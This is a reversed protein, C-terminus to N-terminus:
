IPQALNLDAPLLSFAVSHSGTDTAKKILNQLLSSMLEVHCSIVVVWPLSFIAVLQPVLMLQYPRFNVGMHDSKFKEFSLYRFVKISIKSKLGQHSEVNMPRNHDILFGNWRSKRWIIYSYIHLFLIHAKTTFFIAINTFNSSFHQSGTQTDSHAIKADILHTKWGEFTHNFSFLLMKM